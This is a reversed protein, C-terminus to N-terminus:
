SQGEAKAIAARALALSSKPLTVGIAKDYADVIQRLADLLDPAAATVRANAKTQEVAQVDYCRAVCLGEPSYIHDQIDDGSTQGDADAVEWPGPTHKTGKAAAKARIEANTPARFYNEDNM